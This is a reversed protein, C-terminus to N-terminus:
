EAPRRRLQEELERIRAEATEARRAEEEARRAEEAARQRVEDYTPVERGQADWLRLRGRLDIGLGAGLQESRFRGQDDPEIAHYVGEVLRYGWLRAPLPFPDCVFYEPVRIEDQYTGWKSGLDEHMTDTSLVELVFSPRSREQWLKVSKREREPEELDPLVVLDPAVRKHPSGEEWFVFIDTFARAAPRDQLVAGVMQMAEVITWGHWNGQVVTKEEAWPYRVGDIEEYAVRKAKPETAVAM